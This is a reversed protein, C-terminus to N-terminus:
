TKVFSKGGSVARAHRPRQTALEGPSEVVDGRPAVFALGDVPVITIPLAEQLSEALHDVAVGQPQVGVDQHAVM